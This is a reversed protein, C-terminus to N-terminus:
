SASSATRLLLLLLLLLAAPLAVLASLPRSIGKV